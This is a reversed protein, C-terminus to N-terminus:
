GIQPAFWLMNFAQQVSKGTGRFGANCLLHFRGSTEPRTMAIKFIDHAFGRSDVPVHKITGGSSLLGAISGRGNASCLVPCGKSDQLADVTLDSGWPGRKVLPEKKLGCVELLKLFLAKEKKDFHHDEENMSSEVGPNKPLCRTVFIMFLLTISVAFLLCLLFISSM